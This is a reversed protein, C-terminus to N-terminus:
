TDNAIVKESGGAFKVRLEKTGGGDDAVYLVGATTPASPASVEGLFLGQWGATASGLDNGADADPIVANSFRVSSSQVLVKLAGFRAFGLDNGSRYMGTGTQDSFAYAPAATTGDANLIGAAFTQQGAFDVSGDARINGVKKLLGDGLLGPM